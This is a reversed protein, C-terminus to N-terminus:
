SSADLSHEHFRKYLEIHHARLAAIKKDRDAIQEKLYGVQDRLHEATAEGTAMRRRGDLEQLVSAVHGGHKALSKRTTPVLRAVESANYVYKKGENQAQAALVRMVAGIREQLADGRVQPRKGAGLSSKSSKTM